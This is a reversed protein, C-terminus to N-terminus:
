IRKFLLAPFQSEFVTTGKNSYSSFYGQTLFTFQIGGCQVSSQGNKEYWSGNSFTSSDNIISAIKYFNAEAM